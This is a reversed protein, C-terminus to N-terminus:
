NIQWKRYPWVTITCYRVPNLPLKLTACKHWNNNVHAFFYFIFIMTDHYGQRFVPGTFKSGPSHNEHLEQFHRGNDSELNCWHMDDTHAELHWLWGDQLWHRCFSCCDLKKRTLKRQWCLPSTTEQSQSRCHISRKQLVSNYLYLSVRDECLSSCMGCQVCVQNWDNGKQAQSMQKGKCAPCVLCHGILDFPGSSCWNWGLWGMVPSWGFWIFPDEKKQKEKWVSKRDTQPVAPCVLLDGARCKM